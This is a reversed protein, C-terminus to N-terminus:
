LFLFVERMLWQNAASAGSWSVAAFSKALFAAVTVGCGVSTGLRAARKKDSCGIGHLDSRAM